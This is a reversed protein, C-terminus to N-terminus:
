KDKKAVKVVIAKMKGELKKLREEIAAIKMSNDAVKKTFANKETPKM